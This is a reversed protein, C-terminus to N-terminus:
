WHLIGGSGSGATGIASAFTTSQQYALPINGHRRAVDVWTM